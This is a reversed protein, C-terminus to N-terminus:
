QIEFRFERLLGEDAIAIQTYLRLFYVGAKAIQPLEVKAQENRVTTTGRWVEKGISSVLQVQIPGPTLDTTDVRLRMPRDSPLIAAEFGRCASLLSATSTNCASLAGEAFHTVTREVSISQQLESPVVALGLALAACTAGAWSLTPMTFWKNWITTTRSAHREKQIRETEFALLASQLTALSIELAELRTICSECVLIHTEVAELEASASQQLLFRELTTENPHELFQNTM